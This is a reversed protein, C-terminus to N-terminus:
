IDAHRVPHPPGPALTMDTGEADRVDLSAYAAFVLRSCHLTALNCHLVRAYPGIICVGDKSDSVVAAFRFAADLIVHSGGQLVRDASASTVVFGCVVTFGINKEDVYISTPNNVAVTVKTIGTGALQVQASTEEPM